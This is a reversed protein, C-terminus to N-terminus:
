SVTDLLPSPINKCDIKALNSSNITAVTVTNILTALTNTVNKNPAKAAPAKTKAVSAEFNIGSVIQSSEDIFGNLDDITADVILVIQPDNLIHILLTNTISKHKGTNHGLDM